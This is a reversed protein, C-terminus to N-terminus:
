AYAQRDGVRALVDGDRGKSFAAHNCRTVCVDLNLRPCKIEVASFEKIQRYTPGKDWFAAYRRKGESLGIIRGWTGVHINEKQYEAWCKEENVPM